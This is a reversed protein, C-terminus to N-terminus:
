LAVAPSLRPLEVGNLSKTTTCTYTPGQSPGCEASKSSMSCVTQVLGSASRDVKDASEYCVSLPGNHIGDGAISNYKAEAQPGSFTHTITEPQRQQPVPIDAKAIQVFGLFLVAALFAKV